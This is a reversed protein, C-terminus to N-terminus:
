EIVVHVFWSWKEQHVNEQLMILAAGAKFTSGPPYMAQIPRNLLPKYYDNFLINFNHRRYRWNFYQPRRPSSVYALIEGTSPEIAVIGGVKGQMLKEGYAQLEADIGTIMDWGAIPTKDDEGDKYKGKYTNKVDVVQFNYGKEGRLLSDYYQELGTTGMNIVWNM